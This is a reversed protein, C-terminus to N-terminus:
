KRNYYYDIQEDISRQVDLLEYYRLESWLQPAFRVVEDQASYELFGQIVFRELPYNLILQKVARDSASHPDNLLSGGFEVPLGDDFRQTYFRRFEKAVEDLRAEGNRDVVQMISKLLVPKYSKTLQKSKAFDLFAQRWEEGTAPLPARVFQRRIQDIRDRRFYYVERSGVIQTADPQLKGAEIWRRRITTADVRLTYSLTRLSILDIEPEVEVPESNSDPEQYAVGTDRVWSGVLSTREEFEVFYTEDLKQTQPTSPALGLQHQQMLSVVREGDVISIHVFRSSTAKARAQPAYGATTIFIGHLYRESLAGIFRDIDPRQVNHRHRKVQVGTPIRVVEADGVLDGHADIGGDGIYRTVMVNQLGVYVLLDGAFLEFARPTMALLREKLQRKLEPNEPPQYLM